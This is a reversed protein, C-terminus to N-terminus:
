DIAEMLSKFPNYGYKDLSDLLKSNIKLFEGIKNALAQSAEGQSSEPLGASSSYAVLPEKALQEALKKKEEETGQSAELIEQRSYVRVERGSAGDIIAVVYDEALEPYDGIAEATISALETIIKGAVKDMALDVRDAVASASTEESALYAALSEYNSAKDINLLSPERLASNATFLISNISM